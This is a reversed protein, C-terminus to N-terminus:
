YEYRVGEEENELIKNFVVGANHGGFGVSFSFAKDLECKKAANPTYDLDCEPDPETLGITPPIIGTELAKVAAIAEVAGAAGLMHGTMSKTSSIKAKYAAEGFVKKIAATETKDNLQTSTGHTNIYLHEDATLGAEAFALEIMKSAALVDERPATIHYADCTNGYGSIECYIKAGRGVAHSYEELVLMGAGEGMVFGNRNKNYPISCSDPNQSQSLAQANMFGGIALETIASESGGTIIADAYGYKIARFAEGVSNSSTACASVVPLNVGRANFRMAILASAMNSIMMPIFFPSVRAAGKEFSVKTQSIFTEMGGIGSGVYVGFRDPDINNEIGSELVAQVAAAIAYQAYIDTRRIENKEMYKLPEFNKVEAALTVKLASADFKTIPAFGHRGNILSDWFSNIDNGVPTVCGLGTVVVRRM